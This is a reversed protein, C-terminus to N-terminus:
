IADATMVIENIEQTISAQRAKNYELTLDEILDEANDTAMDMALRRASHESTTSELWYGYFLSKIYLPVLEFLITDIDPEYLIEKYALTYTDQKVIPLLKEFMPEFSMSNVYKTYVINISSIKKAKYDDIIQDAIKVLEIYKITDSAIDDRNIQYGNERLSYKGRSGIVLLEGSKPLQETILRLVNSNYGGCLGLDSLYVITLPNDDIREQLYINDIENTYSLIETVIEKLNTSYPKNADFRERQRKLKGIAILEMAKTIKRTTKIGRIRTKIVQQSGSM